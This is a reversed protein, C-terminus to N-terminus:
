VIIHFWSSMSNFLSLLCNIWKGMRREEIPRPCAMRYLFLKILYASQNEEQHNPKTAQIWTNLGIGAM